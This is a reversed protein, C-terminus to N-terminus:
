NDKAGQEIWLQIKKIETSTIAGEFPHNDNLKIMLPSKNPNEIDLYNGSILTQYASSVQLTPHAVLGDHCSICSSKFVPMVDDSFSMAKTEAVEEEIIVDYYCSGFMVSIMVLVTARHVINLRSIYNEIRKNM